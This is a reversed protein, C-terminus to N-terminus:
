ARRDVIPDSYYTSVLVPLLAAAHPGLARVIQFAGLAHDEVPATLLFAVMRKPDSGAALAQAFIAASKEGHKAVFGKIRRANTRIARLEVPALRFLAHRDAAEADFPVRRSQRAGGVRTYM